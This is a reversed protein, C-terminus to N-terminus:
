QARALLCRGAMSLPDAFAERKVEISSPASFPEGARTRMSYAFTGGVPEWAGAKHVFQLRVTQRTFQPQEQGLQLAEAAERTDARGTAIGVGFSIWAAVPGVLSASKVVDFEVAAAPWFARKVWQAGQPAQVVQVFPEAVAARCRAVIQEFEALPEAAATISALALLCAAATRITKM